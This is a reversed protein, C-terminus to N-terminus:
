TGKPCPADAEGGRHSQAGSEPGPLAKPAEQDEDQDEVIEFDAEEAEVEDGSSQLLAQLLTGAASGLRRRSEPQDLLPGSAQGGGLTLSHEVPTRRLLGLKMKLEALDTLLTAAVEVEKRMDRTLLNLQDETKLGMDIRTMQIQYLRELEDIESMVDGASELRKKWADLKGSVVKEGETPPMKRKFRYLAQQVADRSADLYENKGEQIFLAIDEVPTDARLLQLVDPWCELKELRSKRAM